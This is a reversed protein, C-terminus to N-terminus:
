INKVNKEGKKGKLYSEVADRVVWALSVRKRLAIEELSSYTSRSFSISSRIIDKPEKRM